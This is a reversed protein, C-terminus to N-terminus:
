VFVRDGEKIVSGLGGLLSLVERSKEKVDDNDTCRLLAVHRGVDRKQCAVSVPYIDDGYDPLERERAMGIEEENSLGGQDSRNWRM